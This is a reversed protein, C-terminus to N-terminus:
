RKTKDYKWKFNKHIIKDNKKYDNPSFLNTHDLLTKGAIVYEIFGNYYFESTTCDDDQIRFVNYAISKVKIKSLM